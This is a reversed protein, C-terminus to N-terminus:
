FLKDVVDGGDNKKNNVTTINIQKISSNINNIGFLMNEMYPVIDKTISGEFAEKLQNPLTSLLRSLNGNQIKTEQLLEILFKESSVNEFLSYLSEQVSVLPIKCLKNYYLKEFFMYLLSASVALVSCMAAIQMSSMLGTVSMLTTDQNSFDVHTFVVAINLFTFLPGLGTLITPAIQIFKSNFKSSVLTEENFFYSPDVTTQISNVTQSVNKYSVSNDQNKIAVSEPFVLTSKFENWSSSIFKMKSLAANFEGFRYSLDSKKFRQLLNKLAFLDKNVQVFSKYTYLMIGVSTAFIILIAPDFLYRFIINM